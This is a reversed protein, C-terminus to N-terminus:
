RCRFREYRLREKHTVFQALGAIDPFLSASHVNMHFLRSLIDWALESPFTFGRLWQVSRGSMMEALSREFPLTMNCNILFLGQQSSLRLNHSRPILPIVLGHDQVAPDIFPSLPTWFALQKFRDPDAFDVRQVPPWPKLLEKSIRQAERELVTCDIAWVAGWNPTTIKHIDIAAFYLAAYASYTWDLLRTPVGYHQMVSLWTPLITKNRCANRTYFSGESSFGLFIGQAEYEQMTDVHPEREISPKLGLAAQKQGRYIWRFQDGRSVLDTLEKEIGAWDTCHPQEKLLMHVDPTRSMGTM